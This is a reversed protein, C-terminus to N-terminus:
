NSHYIIINKGTKLKIEDIENRLFDTRTYLFGQVLGRGNESFTETIFVHLIRMFLRVINAQNVIM